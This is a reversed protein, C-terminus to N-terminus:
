TIQTKFKQNWTSKPNLPTSNTSWLTESKSIGAPLCHQRQLSQQQFRSPNCSFPADTSPRQIIGTSASKGCLVVSLTTNRNKSAGYRLSVQSSFCPWAVRKIGCSGISLNKVKTFLRRDTTVRRQCHLWYEGYLGSIAHACRSWAMRRRM